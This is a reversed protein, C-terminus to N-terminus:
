SSRVIIRRRDFIGFNIKTEQTEFVSLIPVRESAELFRLRESLTAFPIVDDRNQSIERRSFKFISWLFGVLQETVRTERDLLHINHPVGLFVMGAFSALLPSFNIQDRICTTV